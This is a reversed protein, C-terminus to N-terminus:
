VNKEANSINKVCLITCKADNLTLHINTVIRRSLALLSKKLYFENKNKINNVCLITCEADNLTVRTNTIIRNSQAM